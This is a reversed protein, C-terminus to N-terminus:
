GVKPVLLADLIHSPRNKVLYLLPRDLVQKQGQYAMAPAMSRLYMSTSFEGFEVRNGYLPLRYDRHARSRVMLVKILVEMHAINVKLRSSVLAYFDKLASEVNTYSRLTDGHGKRKAACMFDKISEAYDLMNAHRLPLEFLPEDPDWDGLKLVYVGRESDVEWGTLRLQRLLARSLSAPRNDAYVSLYANDFPQEAKGTPIKLLVESLESVFGLQLSAVDEVINVDTIHPAEKTQIVLQMGAVGRLRDALMLHNPNVGVKLYKREFESLEVDGVSSSSEVHKVSLVSQSIKEGLSTAAIHGVNTHWPISHFMEGYCFRCAGQSDSHQCYLVSRIEIMQDILHRDHRTIARYGDPTKYYKGDLYWLDKARVRWSIHQQSGCDTDYIKTFTHALLQLQRNFYETTQLPVGTFSQAKSALRSDILSDYFKSFGHTFGVMIPTPFIHSDIDTTAGRPGVCQLVQNMDVLGNRVTQALRNEKLEKPDYLVSSITSYVRNLSADNPQIAEQAAKIKPHNVVDVFDLISLSQVYAEARATGENYLDNFAGYAEYWFQEIDQRERHQAYWHYIDKIAASMMDGHTMKQPLRDGLDHQVRTPADPWRNYFRRLTTVTFQARRNTTTIAGEDYILHLPGDPLAWLADDALRCLDRIHYTPLATM